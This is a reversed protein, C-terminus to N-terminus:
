AKARNARVMIAVAVLGWVGNFILVFLPTLTGLDLGFMGKDAKIPFVVLLQVVTPGLSLLLGRRWPHTLAVPILLLIGWMGGWVLRPYLWQASLTPAIGVGLAATIGLLGFLWVTLSNALGGAVGASFALALRQLPNNAM